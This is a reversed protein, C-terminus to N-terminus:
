TSCFLDARLEAHGANDIVRRVIDLVNEFVVDPGPCADVVIWESDSAGIWRDFQLRVKQQFYVTEYREQGFGGRSIMVKAPLDMFLVADPSLLGIDSSKCWEYDLGKACSFAVGSYAYRDVILTIGSNLAARMADMSEWRNASFLLHIAQDSLEQVGNANTLYDNICQGIATSRDPFRFLQAPIGSNNLHDVLRMCQTSKGARDCGELVILAGRPTSDSKALSENIM